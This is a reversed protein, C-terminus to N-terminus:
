PAQTRRSEWAALYTAELQSTFRIPDCLISQRLRGPICARLQGLRKPDNALSVAIQIYQTEDAAITETLGANTLLSLGVRSRHAEGVLTVVPVGMWLAECTTTTGNYPFTDLAIDVDNYYALHDETKAAYGALLIREPTVGHQAFAADLHARVCRSDVGRAKIFHIMGALELAGPHLPQVRLIAACLALAEGARGAQLLALARGLDNSASPKPSAAAGCCKKYKRGSGCPCPNNREAKM